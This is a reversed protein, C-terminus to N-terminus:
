TSRDEPRFEPDNAYGVQDAYVEADWCTAEELHVTIDGNKTDLQCWQRVFSQGDIQVAILDLAEKSDVEGDANYVLGHNAKYIEEIEEDRFTGVCIGKVINFISVKGATDLTLVHQRDNLMKARILGPRGRIIAQPAQRLPVADSAADRNEFQNKAIEAPDRASTAARASPFMSAQSPGRAHGPALRPDTERPLSVASATYLSAGRSISGRSLSPYPGSKDIVGLSIMSRFPVGSPSLNPGSRQDVSATPSPAFAVAREKPAPDLFPNQSGLISAPETERTGLRSSDAEKASGLLDAHDPRSMRGRVDEWRAIDASATATWVMEDELCEIRVIGQTGEREGRRRECRALLTCEGEGWDATIGSLDTVCLNGARDGSFFRELNPHSSALSWIPASHHTFTHICRQAALSWLRSFSYRDAPTWSHHHFVYKVTSDSSGSLM